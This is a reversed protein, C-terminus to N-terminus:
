PITSRCWSGTICRRPLKPARRRRAAFVAGTRVQTDVPEDAAGDDGMGAAARLRGLGSGGDGVGRNELRGGGGAVGRDGNGGAAREARHHHGGDAVGARQVWMKNAFAGMRERDSTFHILPIVAFPLQMSLIVQSLILLQYTAKDGAYWITIAAPMVALGRTLLRRLWPRMRFNLFGEMVIQGALTGTLTSSQGSALLAVAFLVGAAGTGLLPALLLHAQQIETVVINRKFFVAAAM